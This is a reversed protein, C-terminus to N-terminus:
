RYSVVNLTSLGSSNSATATVTQSTATSTEVDDGLTARRRTTDSWTFDFRETLGSWTYSRNSSSGVGGVVYGGKQWNITTSIAAGSTLAAIGTDNPSTNQLNDIAIIVMACGAMTGSFTVQVTAFTGTTVTRSAICGVSSGGSSATIQSDITAEAGAIFVSSVTRSTVSSNASIYVIVRRTPSAAGISQTESYTPGSSQNNVRAVRNLVASDPVAASKPALMGMTLPMGLLLMHKSFELSEARVIAPKPIILKPTEPVVLGSVLTAALLSKMM